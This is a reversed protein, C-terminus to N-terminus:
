LPQPITLSPYGSLQTLMLGRSYSDIQGLESGRAQAMNDDAAAFCAKWYGNMARDTARQGGVNPGDYRAYYSLTTAISEVPEAASNVATLAVMGLIGGLRIVYVNGAAVEGRVGGCWEPYGLEPHGGYVGLPGPRVAAVAYSHPRLQALYQGADTIVTFAQLPDPFGDAVLVVTATDAAPVIAVEPEVITALSIPIEERMRASGCAAATGLLLGLAVRTM